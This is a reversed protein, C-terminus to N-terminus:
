TNTDKLLADEESVGDNHASRRADCTLRDFRRLFHIVAALLFAQVVIFVFLTIQSVLALDCLWYRCSNQVEEEDLYAVLRGQLDPPSSCIVNRILADNSQDMLWGKLYLVACDCTWPNGHLSVRQLAPLTDLLGNPLATLLNDHLHLETTESPFSSPLTDTTLGRRSCDVVGARCSCLNPCVAEVVCVDAGFMCFIVVVLVCRM